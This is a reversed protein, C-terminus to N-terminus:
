GAVSVVKIVIKSHQKTGIDVGRLWGKQIGYDICTGMDKTRAFRQFAESIVKGEKAKSLERRTLDCKEPKLLEVLHKTMADIRDQGLDRHHLLGVSNREFYLPHQLKATYNSKVM